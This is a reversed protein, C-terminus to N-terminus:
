RGDQMLYDTLARRDADDAIPQLSMWLGPFMEDPDTLFRLLKERDWAQGAAFARRLPPSYDFGPAGGVRRGALGVLDPGAMGTKGAVRAHCASCPEFLVRGRALDDAEAGAAWLVAALLGSLLRM